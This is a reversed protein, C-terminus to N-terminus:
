NAITATRSHRTKMQAKMEQEIVAYTKQQEASLLANIRKDSDELVAGMQGMKQRRRLTSDALIERIKQRREILIPLITSKQDDSLNLRQSLMNLVDNASRGGTEADAPTSASQEQLDAGAAIAASGVAPSTILILLPIALRM